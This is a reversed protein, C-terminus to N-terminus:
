LLPCTTVDPDGLRPVAWFLSCPNPGEKRLTDILQVKGPRDFCEGDEEMKGKEQKKGAKEDVQATDM